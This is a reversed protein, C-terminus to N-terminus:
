NEIVLVIHKTHEFRCKVKDLGLKTQTRGQRCLRRHIRRREVILRIRRIRHDIPVPWRLNGLQGMSIDIMIDAHEEEIELHDLTLVSDEGLPHM